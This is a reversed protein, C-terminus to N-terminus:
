LLGMESDDFAIASEYKFLIDIFLQKEVDLLFGIDIKISALCKSTLRSEHPVNESPKGTMNAESNVEPNVKGEPKIEDPLSTNILRIKRDKRKYM